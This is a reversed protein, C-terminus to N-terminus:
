TKLKLSYSRQTQYRKALVMGSSVNCNLLKEDIKRLTEGPMVVATWGAPYGYPLWAHGETGANGPAGGPGHGGSLRCGV